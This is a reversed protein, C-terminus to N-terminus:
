KIINYCIMNTYRKKYKYTNFPLCNWWRSDILKERKGIWVCLVWIGWFPILISCRAVIHIHYWRCKFTVEEFSFQPLLFNREHELELRVVGIGFSLSVCCRIESGFSHLFKIWGLDHFRFDSVKYFVYTPLSVQTCTSLWLVWYGGM